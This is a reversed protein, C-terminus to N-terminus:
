NTKRCTSMLIKSNLHSDFYHEIVINNNVVGNKILENGIDEWLINPIYSTGNRSVSVESKEWISTLALERVRVRQYPTLSRQNSSFELVLECTRQYANHGVSDDSHSCNPLVALALIWSKVRM